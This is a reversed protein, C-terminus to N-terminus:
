ILGRPLLDWRASRHQWRSPVTIDRRFGSDGVAFVSVRRLVVRFAGVGLMVLHFCARPCSGCLRSATHLELLISLSFAIHSDENEFGKRDNLRVHGFASGKWRSRAAPLDTVLSRCVKATVLTQKQKM